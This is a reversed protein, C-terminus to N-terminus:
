HKDDKPSVKEEPTSTGEDESVEQVRGHIPPKKKGTLDLFMSVVTHKM